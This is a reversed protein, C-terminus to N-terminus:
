RRRSSETGDYGSYSGNSRYSIGTDPSRGHHWQHSGWCHRCFSGGCPGCRIIDSYQIGAGCNKCYVEWHIQENRSPSRQEPQLEGTGGYGPWRPSQELDRVSDYSTRSQKETFSPSANGTGFTPKTQYDRFGPIEQPTEQLRYTFYFLVAAGLSLILTWSLVFDSSVYWHLFDPMIYMGVFIIYFIMHLFLIGTAVLDAVISGISMGHSLIKRRIGGGVIVSVILLGILVTIGSLVSRNKGPTNLYIFVLIACIAVDSFVIGKLFAALKKRGAYRYVPM